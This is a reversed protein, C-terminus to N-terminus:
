YKKNHWRNGIFWSGHHHWGSYLFIFDIRTNKDEGGGGIIHVHRDIFGPTLIMNTGDFVEMFPAAEITKHIYLIKGEGILIDQIGLDQPAYIHINKILLM